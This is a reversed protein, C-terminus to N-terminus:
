RRDGDGDISRLALRGLEPGEVVRAAARAAAAGAESPSAGAALRLTLVVGFVDGAGTPDVEHAPAAPIETRVGGAALITAGRAGRTIAVTAGAAAFREAVAEADPHDEESLIAAGVPPPELAEPALAPGVRGDADARRLWGQLGVGVFRAGLSAVLARDCEGAVPGIYAVDPRSWAPPVDAAVLARARRRLWLTRHGGDYDLAFTTMVPTAACALALGPKGRLAALLPDDPPAATVLATDIGLRAAARAAYAAAGGLRVGGEVEDRTVHGVVLLAPSRPSL